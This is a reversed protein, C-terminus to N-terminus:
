EEFKKEVEDREGGFRSQMPNNRRKKEDARRAEEIPYQM